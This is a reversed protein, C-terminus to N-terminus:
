RSRTRPILLQYLCTTSSLLAILSLLRTSQVKGVYAQRTDVVVSKRKGASKVRVARRPAIVSPSMRTRCTLSKIKISALRLSRHYWRQWYALSILYSASTAPPVPLDCKSSLTASTQSQKRGDTVKTEQYRCCGKEKAQPPSTANARCAYVGVSLATTLITDQGKGYVFAM